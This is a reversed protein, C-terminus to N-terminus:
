APGHRRGVWPLLMLAIRQDGLAALWVATVGWRDIVPYLPLYFWDLGVSRRSMVSIRPRSASAGALHAVIGPADGGISWRLGRPPTVKAEAYRMIHVWMFLLMLLPAAIHVYAMLTFFRGSLYHDGLFNRAIPEVFLPLRDLWESTTVAVYQALQDWVMWYGTIGCVYVFGLVVLGTIWAFWRPGRLRDFAFERLMHVIAIAVLADSAYRHLSRM